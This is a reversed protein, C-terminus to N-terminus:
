NGRGFNWFGKRKKEGRNSCSGAYFSNPNGQNCKELIRKYFYAGEQRDFERYMKAYELARKENKTALIGEAYINALEFAAWPYDNKAAIELMNLGRNVDYIETNPELYLRGLSYYESGSSDENAINLDIVEKYLHEAKRVDKKIYPVFGTSYIKAMESMAYGYKEESAYSIMEIGKKINTKVITGEILAMGMKTYAHLSGKSVGLELWEIYENYDFEQKSTSNNVKDWIYKAEKQALTAIVLDLEEKLGRRASEKLWEFAEEFDSDQLQRYMASCAEPNGAEASKRMWKIGEQKNQEIGQGDILSLAYNLMGASSGLEAAKQIYQNALGRNREVGNGRWYLLGLSCIADAHEQNECQEYWYKAKLYDQEVGNGDEYRKGVRYQAEVDGEQAAKLVWEFAKEQNKETGDGRAYMMSLNFMADIQGAQAAEEYWYKGKQFDQEVYEGVCYYYGLLNQAECDGSIAEKELDKIEM